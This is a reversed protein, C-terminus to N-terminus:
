GGSLLYSLLRPSPDEQNVVLWLRRDERIGQGASGNNGIGPLRQFGLHGKLNALKRGLNADPGRLTESQGTFGM